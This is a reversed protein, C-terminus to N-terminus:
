IIHFLLNAEKVWTPRSKQKEGCSLIYVSVTKFIGKDSNHKNQALHLSLPISFVVYHTTEFDRIKM